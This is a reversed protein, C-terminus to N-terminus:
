FKKNIDRKMLPLKKQYFYNILEASNKTIQLAKEM